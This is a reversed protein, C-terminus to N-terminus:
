AHSEAEELMANFTDIWGQLCRGFDELSSNEDRAFMPTVGPAYQQQSKRALDQEGKGHLTAKLGLCVWVMSEMGDKTATYMGPRAVIGKLVGEIEILAAQVLETDTM